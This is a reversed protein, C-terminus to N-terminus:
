PANSWYDKTDQHWIYIYIRQCSHIFLLLLCSVVAWPETPNKACKRPNPLSFPCCTSFITMETALNLHLYWAMLLMYAYKIKNVGVTLRRPDKIQAPLQLSKSSPSSSSHLIFLFHIYNKRSSSLNRQKFISENETKPWLSISLIRTEEGSITKSQFLNINLYLTNYSSRM